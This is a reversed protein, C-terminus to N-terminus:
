PYYEGKIGKIIWNDDTFHYTGELTEIEGKIRSDALVFLGTVSKIERLKDINEACVKIAEVVVPKKKVKQWGDYFSMKEMDM